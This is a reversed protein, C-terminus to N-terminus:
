PHQQARDESTSPVRYDIGLVCALGEEDAFLEGARNVQQDGIHDHWPHTSALERFAQAREAVSILTRNM